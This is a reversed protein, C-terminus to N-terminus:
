PLKLCVSTGKNLESKFEISIGLSKCLEYVVALGVGTGETDIRKCRYFITGLKKIEDESMGIGTDAITIEVKNDITACSIYVYGKPVNYKIANSILNGVIQKLKGVDIKVVCSEVNKATKCYRLQTIKTKCALKAYEDMVGSLLNHLICNTPGIPVKGQILYSDFDKEIRKVDDISKKILQISEKKSEENTDNELSQTLLYINNLSNKIEHMFSSIQNLEAM